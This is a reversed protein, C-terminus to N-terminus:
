EIVSISDDLTNVVWARTGDPSFTVNIPLFGGVLSRSTTGVTVTTVVQDTATNIITVKGPSFETTVFVRQGDPSLVLARPTAAPTVTTRLTSTATDIVLINGPFNVGVYAKRDDLTFIINRTGSSFAPLPITAMVQNTQPDVVSVATSGGVYLRRGAHDFALRAAGNAVSITAVQTHTVTDVVRVLGTAGAGGTSFHLVYLRTGEPNLAIQDTTLTSHLTVDGVLAGTATDFTTVRTGPETAVYLRREDLSLALARPARSLPLLTKQGRTALDLVAIGPPSANGVYLEGRTLSAAVHIGAHSDGLRLTGLASGTAQAFATTTSVFSNVVYGASGESIAVLGLPQALGFRGLATPVPANTATDVVSVTNDSNNLVYLTATGGM